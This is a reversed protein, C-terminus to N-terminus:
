VICVKFLELLHISCSFRKDGLSIENACFFVRLFIELRNLLSSICLGDNLSECMNWFWHHHVLVDFTWWLIINFLGIRLCHQLHWFNLYLLWRGCESQSLEDWRLGWRVLDNDIASIKNWFLGFNVLYIDIHTFLIVHRRLGRWVLYLSIAALKLFLNLM